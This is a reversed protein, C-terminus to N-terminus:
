PPLIERLGRWLFLLLLVIVPSGCAAAIVAFLLIINVRM